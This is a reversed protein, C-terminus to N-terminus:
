TPFTVDSLGPAAGIVAGSFVGGGRACSCCPAMRWRLAAFALASWEGWVGGDHGSVFFLDCPFSWLAWGGLLLLFVACASGGSHRM